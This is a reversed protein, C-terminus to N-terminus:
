VIRELTEMRFGGRGIEYTSVGIGHSRNKIKRVMFYREFSTGKRHMELELVCDSLLEVRREVEPGHAGKALVWLIQGDATSNNAKLVNMARLVRDVSYLSFFFDLSNIVLRNPSSGDRYLGLARGLFDTDAIAGRRPLLDSGDCALLDAGPLRARGSLAHRAAREDQDLMAQAFGAHLDEVQVDDFDWGASAATSHVEAEPEDTSLYVSPAAGAAFQKAFIEAGSGPPALLLATYGAPLGGGLFHDLPGIGTPITRM